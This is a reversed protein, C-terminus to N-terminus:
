RTFNQTNVYLEQEADPGPCVIAALEVAAQRAEAETDFHRPRYAQGVARSPPKQTCASTPGKANSAQGRAPVVDVRRSGEELARCM